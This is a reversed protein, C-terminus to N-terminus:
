SKAGGKWVYIMPEATQNPVRVLACTAAVIPAINSSLRRSWMIGDGAPKDVLGAVAANLDLQNRHRVTGDSVADIMRSRAESYDGASMEDLEVGAAELDATWGKAHSPAPPLILPTHHGQTYYLAREIVRDKLPAMGRGTPPLSERVGVYLLGDDRVGAVCFVAGGNPSADLCLRVTDNDPPPSDEDGLQAWRKPNISRMDDSGILPTPIGLRERRHEEVLEPDGSFTRIEQRIYEETIMGSVVGPNARRIAEVDNEDADATNGWEVYFLRDDPDALEARKRVAHLVTSTEHPASSTYYVQAMPRTSLTPIMAGMPKAPLDYAEDLFIKDGVFGRGSGRYRAKFLIRQGTRFRIHEKGNSTVFSDEPDPYLLDSLEPTNEFLWRLRNFHEVSTDFKHASHVLTQDGFLYICAIQIVELIFNKGNQRPCVLGVEFAAWTGDAREALAMEVVWRQWGDLTIGCAREAFEIAEVAASSAVDPPPKLLLPPPEVSTELQLLTM